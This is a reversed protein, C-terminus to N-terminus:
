KSLHWSWLTKMFTWTQSNQMKLSIFFLNKMSKVISTYKNNLTDFQCCYGRIMTLLKIVNNNGKVKKYGDTGKLKNKLKPSCQNYILAWANSENNNYKDKRYKLGKYDEKWAFKAMKFADENLTGDAETHEARMPQKPYELTPRMLQQIAKVINDLTKYNKQIYNEISKLLKSFKAPDSSAGLNFIDDELKDVKSKYSTKTADNGRNYQYRNKKRAGAMKSQEQEPM